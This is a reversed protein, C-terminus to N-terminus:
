PRDDSRPWRAKLELEAKAMAAQLQDPSGAELVTCRLPDRCEFATYAQRWAGWTIVWGPWRAQLANLDRDIAASSDSAGADQRPPPQAPGGRSRRHRPRQSRETLDERTPEERDPPMPAPM